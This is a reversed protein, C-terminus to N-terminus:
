WMRFLVYASREGYATPVHGWMGFLLLDDKTISVNAGEAITGEACRDFYRQVWEEELNRMEGIILNVSRVQNASQEQAHRVVVEVISKTVGLEHM